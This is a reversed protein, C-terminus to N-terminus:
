ESKHERIQAAFTRHCHPCEITDEANAVNAQERLTQFLAEAEDTDLGLSRRVYDLKDLDVLTLHGHNLLDLVEARFKDRRLSMQESFSSALIGAPLSFLAVGLLIFMAAFFQGAATIPSVDGYGVTSLTVVSWWLAEPISGFHEPQAERELHYMVTAAIVMVILLTGLAALIVRYEKAIVAQLTQMAASYRGLKLVRILRFLRLVRLDIAFFMSLYFPLIAALDILSMPRLMFKLRHKLSSRKKNSGGLELTCTWIRALYELTFFSVSFLEFLWFARQYEKMSPLTELMVAVVNTIILVILLFDFWRGRLNRENYPQLLHFLRDKFTNEQQESSTSM